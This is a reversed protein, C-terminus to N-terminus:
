RGKKEKSADFKEEESENRAEPTSVAVEPAEEPPEVETFGFPVADTLFLTIPLVENARHPNIGLTPWKFDSGNDNRLWATRTKPEDDDAM